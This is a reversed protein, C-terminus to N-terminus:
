FVEVRGDDQLYVAGEGAIEGGPLIEIRLLQENVQVVNAFLRGGQPDWFMLSFNDKTGGFLFPSIGGPSLPIPNTAEIQQIEILLPTRNVVEVRITEGPVFQVRPPVCSSGATCTGALLPHPFFSFVSIAGLSAWILKM